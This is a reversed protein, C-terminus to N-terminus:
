LKRLEFEAYAPMGHKLTDLGTVPLSLPSRGDAERWGEAAGCAGAMETDPDVRLAGMRHLVSFTVFSIGMSLALMAVLGLLQIGLQNANSQPTPLLQCTVTSGEGAGGQGM